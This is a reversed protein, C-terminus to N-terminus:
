APSTYSSEFSDFRLDRRSDVDPDDSEDEGVSREDGEATSTDEQEVPNEEDEEDDTMILNRLNDELKGDMASYDTDDGEFLVDRVQKLVNFFTSVTPREFLPIVNHRGVNDDFGKTQALNIHSWLFNYFSHPDHHTKEQIIQKDDDGTCFKLLMEELFDDADRVISDQTEIYVYDMQNCVALLSNTCINTIIRSRRLFRYLQDEFLLEYQKKNRSIDEPMLSEDSFAEFYFLVRPSCPRGSEVWAKSLGSVDALTRSITDFTKLRAAEVSKFLQLYSLDLNITPHVVIVVHSTLFVLLLAKVVQSECDSYFSLFGKDHVDRHRLKVVKSLTDSDLISKVHLFVVHHLQDYYGEIEVDDDSSGSDGFKDQFINRGLVKDIVAAKCSNFAKRSKGIISVVCIEQKSEM